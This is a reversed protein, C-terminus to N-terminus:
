MIYPYVEANNQLVHLHVEDREKEEVVKVIAASLASSQKGQEVPLGVTTYQQRLFETCFEFSEEKFYSEAM